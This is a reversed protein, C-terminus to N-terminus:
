ALYSVRFGLAKLIQLEESGMDGEVSYHRFEYRRPYEKRLSNFAAVRSEGIESCISRFRIDDGILDCSQLLVGAIGRNQDWQIPDTSIDEFVSEEDWETDYGFFTSAARYIMGTGTCKGEWSYGAIHPSGLRVKMLLDDNVIPEHPWVDLILQAFRDAHELLDEEVMTKGRAANIVVAGDPIMSLLTNNIMCETPCDGSVTLPVHFSVYDAQSLANEVTDFGSEGADAKPPDNLVVNMGISIAKERLLSGINGVGIIALTKGQLSQSREQASHFMATIVWEAVSNANSGPASSFGIGVSKLYEEDVHDRGITATGVFKVSSGKLLQENVKTVSRVLVVDADHVLHSTIENGAVCIVEGLSRFAEKAFPINQDAIIKM